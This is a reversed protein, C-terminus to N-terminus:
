PGLEPLGGTPAPVDGAPAPVEVITPNVVVPDVVIPTPQTVITPDPQTVITPDPQNVVTPAQQEVIAYKGADAITQSTSKVADAAFGYGAIAVAGGILAKGLSVGPAEPAAQQPGYYTLGRCDDCALVPRNPMVPTTMCGTIFLAFLTIAAIKM